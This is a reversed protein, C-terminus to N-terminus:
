AVVGDPGVLTASGEKIVRIYDEVCRIPEETLVYARASDGLQHFDSGATMLLGREKALALAKDNNNIHRPHANCVEIGDVFDAKPVCGSERYPHAQIVLVGHEKAYPYFKEITGGYYPELGILFDRDFGYILYDNVGGPQHAFAIEACYLVTIGLREGAERAALYGTMHKDVKEEWSLETWKGFNGGNIHDAIFITDFGADAYIKAIESASVQGCRSVDATHIHTETKYMKEKREAARRSPIHLPPM